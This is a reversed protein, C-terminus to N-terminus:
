IIRHLQLLHRADNKTHIGTMTISMQLQLLCKNYRIGPAMRPTSKQQQQLCEALYRKHRLICVRPNTTFPPPSPSCPGALEQSIQFVREQTTYSSSTHPWSDIIPARLPPWPCTKSFHPTPLPWDVLFANKSPTTPALCTKATNSRHCPIHGEFPGGESFSSLMPSPNHSMFFSDKRVLDDEPCTTSPHTLPHLSSQHSCNKCDAAMNTECCGDIQMYVVSSMPKRSKVPTDHLPQRTTSTLSIHSRYKAVHAAPTESYSRDNSKQIGSYQTVLRAAQKHTVERARAHKQWQAFILREATARDPRAFVRRRGVDLTRSAPKTPGSARPIFKEWDQNFDALAPKIPIDLMELAINRRRFKVSNYPTQRFIEVDAKKASVPSSINSRGEVNGVAATELVFLESFVRLVFREQDIIYFVHSFNGCDPRAKGFSLPRSGGSGAPSDLCIAGHSALIQCYRTAPTTKRRTVGASIRPELSWSHRAGYDRRPVPIVVDSNVSDQTARDFVSVVGAALPTIAVASNYIFKYYQLRSLAGLSLDTALSIKLASSPSFFRSRFLAPICPRPFRSIGSFVRRDAADDRAIGVRSFEPLSGAPSQVRSAKTPPSCNLREAVAAGPTYANTSSRSFPIATQRSPWLVSNYIRLTVSTRCESTHCRENVDIHQARGTLGYGNVRLPLIAYYSVPPEIGAILCVPFVMPQMILNTLTVIDQKNAFRKGRLPRWVKPILDYDCLCFGTFLSPTTVGGMGFARRSCRTVSGTTRPKANDLPNPWVKHRRSSGPHFWENSQRKLEPEYARACTEDIAIIHNLMGNGERRFCELNICTDYHTWKNFDRRLIRRVSSAPIGTHQALEMVTRRTDDKLCQDVVAVRINRDAQWQAIPYLAIVRHKGYSQMVNLHMSAAAVAINIYTRQRRVLWPTNSLTGDDMAIRGCAQKSERPACKSCKRYCAVYGPCLVLLLPHQASSRFPGKKCEAPPSNETARLCFLTGYLFPLLTEYLNLVRWELRRQMVSYFLVCLNIHTYTGKTHTGGNESQSHSARRRSGELGKETKGVEREREREGDVTGKQNRRGAVDKELLGGARAGESRPSDTFSCSLTSLPLARKANLRRPLRVGSPVSHTRPRNAGRDDIRSSARLCVYTTRRAFVDTHSPSTFPNVWNLHEDSSSPRDRPNKRGPPAVAGLVNSPTSALADVYLGTVMKKTRPIPTPPPPPPPPRGDASEVRLLQRSPRSAVAHWLESPYGRKKTGGGSLLRPRPLVRGVSEGAARCGPCGVVSSPRSALAPRPPPPGPRAPGHSPLQPPPAAAIYLAASATAGEGARPPAAAGSLSLTARSSATPLSSSPLAFCARVSLKLEEASM